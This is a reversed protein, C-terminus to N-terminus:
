AAMAPTQRHPLDGPHTEPMTWWALLVAGGGVAALALLTGPVGAADAMWGALATSITAGIGVALGISGIALNMYGSQRTVDAAILPVMLGFVTASVGDLVQFLLLPPASPNTAFLMAFLVGRLPLAAFGALLVPRRGLRQALTGVYPSFAAGVLQPVLIAASVITDTNRVHSVLANLAVTLMAANGVHFLVACLAFAHLGSERFIHWPRRHRPRDRPHKVAEHTDDETCDHQRITGVAWIAPVVLLATVIFVGQKPLVWACLGLLGAAVATGLSAYRGNVGLRESYATHGCLRLTMAAIAPTIICAALAHIIEALWVPVLYPLFALILAAAGTAALAAATIPRKWHVADVLWGGPLQGALGALTGVSLAVGVDTQSWGQEILWVAVYPGFGTQVAASFFNLANLGVRSQRAEM